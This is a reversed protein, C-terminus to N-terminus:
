SRQPTVLVTALSLRLWAFRVDANRCLQEALKCSALKSAGYLSTPNCTDSEAILGQKPGYEAQSGVGVFAKIGIEIGAQILRLTAFHNEIQIISDRDKSTIGTWGLHLLLDPCFQDLARKVSDIDFLNGEIITLSQEDKSPWTRGGKRVLLGIQNGCRLLQRTLATGVFGTGGTLFIRNVM